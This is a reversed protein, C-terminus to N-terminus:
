EFNNGKYNQSKSDSFKTNVSIFLSTMKKWHSGQWYKKGCAECSFIELGNSNKSGTDNLRGNCVSCRSKLENLHIQTIGSRSLALYLREEESTGRVLISKARQSRARFFLETDNTLLVRGSLVSAQILDKDSLKPEYLSDYGLIRLKRATGGLMGDVIFEPSAGVVSQM